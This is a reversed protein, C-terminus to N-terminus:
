HITVTPLFTNYSLPLFYLINYPMLSQSFQLADYYLSYKIASDYVVILYSYITM